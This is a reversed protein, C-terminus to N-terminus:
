QTRNDIIFDLITSRITAFYDEATKNPRCLPQPYSREDMRRLFESQCKGVIVDTLVTAPETKNRGLRIYAEKICEAASAVEERQIQSCRMSTANPQAVGEVCGAMAVLLAWGYRM